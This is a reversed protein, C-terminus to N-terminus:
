VEGDLGVNLFVNEMALTVDMGFTSMRMECWSNSQSNIEAATAAPAFPITMAPVPAPDVVVAASGAMALAIASPIGMTRDDLVFPPATGGLPSPAIPPPTRTGVFALIWSCSARAVPMFM